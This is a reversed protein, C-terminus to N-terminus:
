VVEDEPDSSSNADLISKAAHICDIYEEILEAKTCVGHKVLLKNITTLMVRVLCEESYDEVFQSTITNAIEQLSQSKLTYEM